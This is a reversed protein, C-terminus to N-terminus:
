RLLTAKGGLVRDRTTMRLLYIGSPADRGATDRGNWTVAQEGAALIRDALVAVRRGALDFVAVEVRETRDMTFTITTQPNFPNPHARPGLAALPAAVPETSAVEGCPRGAIQLGDGAIYVATPTAALAGGPGGIVGKLVPVAPTTIDYVATGAPGCGLYVLGDGLAVDLATAPAPVDALLLPLLPDSVDVVWLCGQDVDPYGAVYLLDGNRALAKPRGPFKLEAVSQPPNPHDLEIVKLTQDNVTAHAYAGHMVLGTINQSTAFGGGPVPADPDSVSIVELYGASGGFPISAV